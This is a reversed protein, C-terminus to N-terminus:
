QARGTSADAGPEVGGPETVPKVDIVHARQGQAMRQAWEPLEVNILVQTAATASATKSPAAGLLNTLFSAAKLRGFWDPRWELIGGTPSMVPVTAELANEAQEVAKQLLDAQREQNLGAAELLRQRVDQPALASISAAPLTRHRRPTSM